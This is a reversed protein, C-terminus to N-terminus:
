ALSSTLPLSRIWAPNSSPLATIVNTGRYATGEAQPQEELRQMQRTPKVQLPLSFMCGTYICFIWKKKYQEMDAKFHEKLGNWKQICVTERYLKLKVAMHLQNKTQLRITKNKRGTTGDTTFNNLAQWNWRLNGFGFHRRSRKLGISLPFPFILTIGNPDKYM